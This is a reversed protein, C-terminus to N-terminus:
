LLFYDGEVSGFGVYPMCLVALIWKQINTSHRAQFKFISIKMLFIVIWIANM